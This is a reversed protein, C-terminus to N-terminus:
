ITKLAQQEEHMQREMRARVFKEADQKAHQAQEASQGVTLATKEADAGAKQAAVAVDEATLPQKVEPLILASGNQAAKADIDALEQDAKTQLEVESHEIIAAVNDPKNIEPKEAPMFGGSFVLGVLVAVAILFASLRYM